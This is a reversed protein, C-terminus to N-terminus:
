CIMGQLDMEKALSDYERSNLVRVDNWARLLSSDSATNSEDVEMNEIQSTDVRVTQITHIKERAEQKLKEQRLLAFDIKLEIKPTNSTKPGSNKVQNPGSPLNLPTKSSFPSPRGSQIPKLQPLLRKRSDCIPVLGPVRRKTKVKPKENKEEM